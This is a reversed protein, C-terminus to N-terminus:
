ASWYLKLGQTTMVACNSLLFVPLWYHIFKAILSRRPLAAGFALAVLLVPIVFYRGQVGEIITAGSATCAVSMSLFIGAAIAAAILALIICPWKGIWSRPDGQSVFALSLMVTATFYVWTPLIRLAGIRADGYGLEGIFTAWYFAGRQVLTNGILTPGIASIKERFSGDVPCRADHLSPLVTAWWGLAFMIALVSLAFGIWSRSRFAVFAPLFGVAALPPKMGALAIVGLGAIAFHWLRPTLESKQAHYFFALIALAIAYSMPDASNSAFLQLSKPLSLLILVFIGFLSPLFALAAAIIVLAAAGNAVRALYITTEVSLGAAEGIRIAIAQPVYVVPLYVSAPLPVFVQEGSWHTKGPKPPAQLRVAAFNREVVRPIAADVFTGSSIAPDPSATPGIRFHSAAYALAFHDEDDGAHLPIFVANIVLLCAGVLAVMLLRYNLWGHEVVASVTSGNM